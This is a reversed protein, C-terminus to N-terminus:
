SHLKNQEYQVYEIETCWKKLPEIDKEDNIVCQLYIIDKDSNIQVTM